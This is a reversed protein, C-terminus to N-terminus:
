DLSKFFSTIKQEGKELSKPITFTFTSGKNLVSTFSIKGGHLDVLRKTLPLGLGTGPKSRIDEGSGRKFDKFILDYDGEDIGIGTDIVSFEWHDKEELIKLTITGKKTYQIANSLLNSIIEKFKKLDAFIYKIKKLGIVNFKLKKEELSPNFQSILQEIVNNLKFQKVNLILEGSEIKSIDLIHNIMDLLQNSSAKIDMLFENQEQNVEGYIRELLLDSFGVIANLPTRLEHSMTAMFEMKFESSKLIQEVYLKQQNVIEQLEKTKIKVEAELQETFKKRLKEAKKRETVDRIVGYFGIKENQSDYKLSVSLEINVKTGNSRIAEYDIINQSIRTKYVENFSKFVFETTEPTFYQRYNMGMLEERPYGYIECLNDNFFTLNGKLDVEYYAEKINELISRYKEESEKIKEKAKMRETVDVLIVLIANKGQYQFTKSYSDVWKIEGSKTILRYPYHPSDKLEKAQKKKLRNMAISRDEPHVAKFLEIASRGMIEQISYGFIESITGNAYKIIGDQIIVIGMLSQETITRFNEESEKLKQEAEKRENIDEIILQILFNKDLKVLFARANIWILSRDKKYIQIELSLPIENKLLIKFKKMILPFNESPFLSIEMFTKGLLDDRKYGYIKEVSSNCDLFKGQMDMLVISNPSKEFLHRYREESRKLDKTRKEIRQELEKNLKLLREKAEMLKQETLKLATIDRAVGLIGFIKGDERLPIGYTEVYVFDGNKTKLKYETPTIQKGVDRIETLAKFALPIQDKSVLDKFSIDPIEERKYGLRELTIENADLFNGKFDHVYILDLSSKFFDKFRDRIKENNYFMKICM